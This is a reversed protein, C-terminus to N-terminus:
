QEGEHNEDAPRTGTPDMHPAFRMWVLVAVTCVAIVVGVVVLWDNGSMFGAEWAAAAGSTPHSTGRVPV